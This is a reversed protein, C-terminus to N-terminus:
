GIVVPKGKEGSEFAADILKQIEAARRFSPDGNRDSILADDFRRANRKVPPTKVKRWRKEDVDKGLCASLESVKGDTEVRIAGRTGSLTLM